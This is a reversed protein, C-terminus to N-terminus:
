DKLCRVSGAYARLGDVVNVDTDFYLCYAKAVDNDYETSSWYFGYSVGNFLLDGPLFIASAESSYTQSGSFWRGSVGKYTTWDSYNVSLSQLEDSTPLRWGSPCATQAKAFTYLSGCLNSESAGVNFQKWTKGDIVMTLTDLEPELEAASKDCGTLVLVATSLLLFSKRLIHKM